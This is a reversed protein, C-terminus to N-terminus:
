SDGGKEITKCRSCASYRQNVEELSCEKVNRKIASCSSLAHYRTGYETIYVTGDAKRVPSCFECASYKGGSSNREEGIKGSAVAKVEIKIHSCKKDLHYVTGHETMYVVESGTAEDGEGGATGGEGTWNRYVLRMVHFSGREPGLVNTPKVRYYIEAQVKDGIEETNVWMGSFGQAVKAQKLVEGDCRAYFVGTMAVDRVLKRDFLSLLTEAVANEGDALREAAYSFAATDRASAIGAEAIVVEARLVSFMQILYLVAFFFVPFAVSAEVTLSANQYRGKSRQRLPNNHAKECTNKRKNTFRFWLYSFVAAFSPTLSAAVTKISFRFIQRFFILVSVM